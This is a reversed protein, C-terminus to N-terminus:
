LSASMICWFRPKLQAVCSMLPAYRGKNLTAIADSLFSATLVRWKLRDHIYIGYCAAASLTGNYLLCTMDQSCATNSDM